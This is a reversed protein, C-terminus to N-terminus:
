CEIHECEFNLLHLDVNSFSKRLLERACQEAIEVETLYGDRLLENFTQHSVLEMDVPVQVRLNYVAIYSKESKKPIIEMDQEFSTLLQDLSMTYDLTGDEGCVNFMIKSHGYRDVSNALVVTIIRGSSPILFQAVWREDIKDGENVFGMPEIIEKICNRIM